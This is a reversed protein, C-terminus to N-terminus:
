IHFSWKHKYQHIWVDEPIWDLQFANNIVSLLPDDSQHSERKQYYLTNDDRCSATCGIRHPQRQQRDKKEWQNGYSISDILKKGPDGHYRNWKLSLDLSDTLDHLIIGKSYITNMKTSYRNTRNQEESSWTVSLCTRWLTTLPLVCAM